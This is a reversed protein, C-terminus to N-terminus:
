GPKFDPFCFLNGIPTNNCVLARALGVLGLSTPTLNLNERRLHPNVGARKAPLLTRAVLVRTYVSSFKINDRWFFFFLSVFIIPFLDIKVCCCNTIKPVGTTERVYVYKIIIYARRVYKMVCM